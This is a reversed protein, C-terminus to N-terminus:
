IKFNVMRWIWTIGLAWLLFGIVMAPMFGPENIVDLYFAPNVLMIFAVLAFPLGGVVFCSLRGEASIAWVKKRMTARERIVKALNGLVEVLNGGTERQMEISAVFFRFDPNPFREAINRMAKERELGYNIEDLAMGFQTGIPDGMEKAVMEMAVPVPHGAQLGRVMLDIASPLQLAFEKQRSDARNKIYLYPLAFATFASIFLTILLPAQLLAGLFLLTGAFVAFCIALYGSPTLKIDAAWIMSQLGPFLVLVAKSIPGGEVSARLISPNLVAEGRKAVMEMRRNASKDRTGPSRILLYFGEVALLISIFVTAYIIQTIALEM